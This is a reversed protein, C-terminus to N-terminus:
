EANHNGSKRIREATRQTVSMGGHGGLYNATRVGTEAGSLCCRSPAAFRVAPLEHILGRYATCNSTAEGLDSAVESTAPSVSRATCDHIESHYRNRLPILM